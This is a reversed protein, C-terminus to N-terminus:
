EARLAEVPNVRAAMRAPIIGAVAGSVILVVAAILTAQLDVQPPAFGDSGQFLGGILELFGVGAIVGAYGALATLVVSEQIILGIISWPTAGLAKRVGIERTREKVVILMINSVGIVGALLTMIGVFWILYRIGLFLMTVKGFEEGANYSGLALEDDPHVRHREALIRRVRDEVAQAPIGPRATMAFFAVRDGANFAQQFTTFPIFITSAQRDGEEGRAKSRFMGVVQFYVGNIQIYEGIPEVGPPFLEKYVQAGIIAVKRRDRIDLDNVFRGQEFVMPQIHRFAPYDGMVTFNGTETGYIVNNGSRWGGLQNRPALHEIGGVQRLANIDANDFRIRRGPQMGQYPMRASRGWVYISNTAFGRMNQAIGTELGNGFGLMILLMFIGWFVGAATLLTRLKNTRLTAYIEQWSDTDLMSM